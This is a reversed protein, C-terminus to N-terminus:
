VVTIQSRIPVFAAQSMYHLENGRFAIGWAVTAAAATGQNATITGTVATSPASTVVATVLGRAGDRVPMNNAIISLMHVVDELTAEEALNEFANRLAM